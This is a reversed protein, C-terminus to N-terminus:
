GCERANAILWSWPFIEVSAFLGALVYPDGASWERAAELNATELIILSGIMQDSQPDKLPGAVRVAPATARIYDLHAARTSLRLPLAGGKDRCILVFHPM